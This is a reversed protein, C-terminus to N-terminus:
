LICVENEVSTVGKAGWATATAVDRDHISHVTGSLRVVGGEAQVTITGRDFWSRHLARVINNQIDTANVKPRISIEDIVGLVGLLRRVDQSAAEKQFHQDVEGTLTIWGKEVKVEISEPAIFVDWALRNVAENAIQDDSRSATLPLRVEIEEVVAKVGKVRCTAVEAARKQAFNEVHGTLTVVGESATVGIHGAKISPEWDLEALVAQQLDKDNSM